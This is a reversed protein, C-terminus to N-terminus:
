SLHSEALYCTKTADSSPGNKSPGNATLYSLRANRKKRRAMKHRNV